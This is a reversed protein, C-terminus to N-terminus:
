IVVIYKLVDCIREVFSFYHGDFTDSAEMEEAVCLVFGNLFKIGQGASSM